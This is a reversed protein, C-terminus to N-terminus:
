GRPRQDRRPRSDPKEDEGDSREEPGSQAKNVRSSGGWPAAGGESGVVAQAEAGGSGDRQDPQDNKM